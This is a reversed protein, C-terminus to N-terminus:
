WCIDWYWKIGKLFQVPQNNENVINELIDASILKLRNDSQAIIFQILFILIIILLRM